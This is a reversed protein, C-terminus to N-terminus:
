YMGGPVASAAHGQGHGRRFGMRVSAEVLGWVELCALLIGLAAYLVSREWNTLWETEASMFIQVLCVM